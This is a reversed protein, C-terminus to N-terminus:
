FPRDRHCCPRLQPDAPEFGAPPVSTEQQSYQTNDPLSLTRRRASGGYLPTMGLATHRLTILAVIVRWLQLWYTPPPRRLFFSLFFHSFSSITMYHLQCTLSSFNGCFKLASSPFLRSPIGQRLNSSSILTSITLNHAPSWPDWSLSRQNATVFM